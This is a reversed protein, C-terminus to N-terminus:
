FFIIAKNHNGIMAGKDKLYICCTTSSSYPATTSHYQCPFIFYQSFFIIYHPHYISSHTHLLPPIISVPSFQLVPLFLQGLTVNSLVLRLRVPRPDIGPRRTFLELKQHHHLNMTHYDTKQCRINQHRFASKKMLM